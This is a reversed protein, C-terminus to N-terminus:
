EAGPKVARLVEAMQAEFEVARRGRLEGRLDALKTNAEGLGDELKDMRGSLGDLRKDVESFRQAMVRWLFLGLGAIAALNIWDWDM